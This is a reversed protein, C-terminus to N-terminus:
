LALLLLSDANDFFFNSTVNFHALILTVSLQLLMGLQTRTQDIFNNINRVASVLVGL